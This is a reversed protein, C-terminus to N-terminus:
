RARSLEVTGFGADVRHQFAVAAMMQARFAPTLTHDPDAEAAIQASGAAKGRPLMPRAAVTLFPQSGAPGGHHRQFALAEVMQARFAATLVRGPDVEDEPSLGVPGRSRGLGLGLGLGLGYRPALRWVAAVTQAYAPGFAPNASHYAAIASGWDGSQGHLRALFGAAYRVNVAADFAQELSAFAHPHFALNVQMCGVDISQVGQSQAARVAAMAQEATDFMAGRGAVNIAWPWPRIAGSRRDLRGSEVIAIANLIQPPLHNARETAAIAAECIMADNVPVAVGSSAAAAM